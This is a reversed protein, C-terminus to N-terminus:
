AGFVISSAPVIVHEDHVPDKQGTLLFFEIDLVEKDTHTSGFLRCSSESLNRKKHMRVLVAMRM